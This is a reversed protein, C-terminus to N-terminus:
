WGELVQDDLTAVDTATFYEDPYSTWRPSYPPKDVDCEIPVGHFDLTMAKELIIAAEDAMHAPVCLGLEDHMFFYLAWSWGWDIIRHVAISFVYRQNGQTAYNLGLRSPKTSLHIGKEDVFYRDWLPAIWGSELIIAPQANMRNRFRTLDPYAVERRKLAVHADSVSMSLVGHISLLGAYKGVGCGYDTALSGFKAAQRMKYHVSTPDEKCIRPDSNFKDGYTLGALSSYLDGHLLDRKLNQDGSLGAMTRPEGQKLDATVILWGPPACIAPRVKLKKEKKPLQQCPPRSESNRSSIAGIVRTDPHIRGDFELVKRMPKLYSADFKAAKRVAQIATALKGAYSEPENAIIDALVFKDWCTTGTKKSTKTNKFQMLGQNSLWEFANGIGVGSASPNIHYWDLLRRNSDVINKLQESLWMVYPGDIVRGRYQSLDAHWQWRLDWWCGKAYGNDWQNRQHVERGMKNVFIATVLADLGAYRLYDIDNDDIHEFGYPKWIKEAPTSGNDRKYIAKFKEHLIQEAKHLYDFGLDLASAPKLARPQSIRPDINDKASQTTVTRPNYWALLPQGDYIHPAAQGLRVSGPVGREIFNVENRAFWAWWADHSSVVARVVQSMDPRQVQIVWGSAEDAVQVTRLQYSASFPDHANTEADLGLWRGQRERTWEWLASADELTNVVRLLGLETEIVQM